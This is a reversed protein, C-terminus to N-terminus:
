HNQKEGKLTEVCVPEGYILKQTAPKAIEASPGYFTICRNIALLTDTYEQVIHIDHTILFITMEWSKKLDDLMFYIPEESDMDVGTTPEDLLLVNPKDNLAWAILIRRLQGGSIVGLRKNLINTDTIRVLKLSEKLDVAKGMSLFERVTMPVDSVSVNQPVYGIRTKETWEIEGTYPIRKLITRLLVSKGAGNPGLIALSSGKKVNFSLNNLITQNQLTVNLKKVKLIYEDNQTM